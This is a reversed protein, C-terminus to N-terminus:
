CEDRAEIRSGIFVHFFCPNDFVPTGYCQTKGIRPFFVRRAVAHNKNKLLARGARFSQQGDLEKAPRYIHAYMVHSTHM